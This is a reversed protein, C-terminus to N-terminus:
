IKEQNIQAEVEVPVSSEKGPVFYKTQGKKSKLILKGSSDYLFLIDHSHKNKRCLFYDNSIRLVSNFAPQILYTGDRNIVGSKKRSYFGSVIATGRDFFFSNGGEQDPVFAKGSSGSYDTGDRFILGIVITKSSDIFGSKGEVVVRCLGDFYEFNGYLMKEFIFPKDFPWVMGPKPEKQAQITMTLFLCTVLCIIVRYNKEEARMRPYITCMWQLNAM